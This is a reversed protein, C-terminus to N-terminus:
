SIQFMEKVWSCPTRMAAAHFPQFVISAEEQAGTRNLNLHLRNLAITCPARNLLRVAKASFFLAREIDPSLWSLRQQLDSSRPSDSITGTAQFRHMTGCHLQM